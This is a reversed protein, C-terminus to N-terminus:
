PDVKRFAWGVLTEPQQRLVATVVEVWDGPDADPGTFRGCV